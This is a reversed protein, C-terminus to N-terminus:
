LPLPLPLFPLLPLALFSTPVTTAKGKTAFPSFAWLPFALFTAAFSFMTALFTAAFKSFSCASNTMFLPMPAILAKSQHILGTGLLSSLMSSTTLGTAIATLVNGVEIATLIALFSWRWCSRCGGSQWATRWCCNSLHSHIMYGCRRLYMRFLQFNVALFTFIPPCRLSVHDLVDTHGWISFLSCWKCSIGEILPVISFNLIDSRNM